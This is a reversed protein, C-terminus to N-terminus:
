TLDSREEALKANSCRKGNGYIFNCQKYPATSDQLIHKICYSRGQESPLSCDFSANQCKICEEMVKQVIKKVPLSKNM